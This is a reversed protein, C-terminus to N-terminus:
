TVLGQFPRRFQAQQKETAAAPFVEISPDVAFGGVSAAAVGDRYVRVTRLGLTAEDKVDLTAVLATPSAVQYSTVEVGPGFDFELVGDAEWATDSGSILVEVQRGLYVAPPTISTLMPTREGPAGKPGVDGAVDDGVPGEEGTPAKCALLLVACLASSTLLRV